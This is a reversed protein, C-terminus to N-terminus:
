RKASDRHSENGFHIKASETVLLRFGIAVGRTM